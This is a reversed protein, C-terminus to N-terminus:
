VKQLKLLIEKKSEAILEKMIEAKFAERDKTAKKAQEKQEEVVQRLRMGQLKNQEKQEELKIEMKKLSGDYLKKKPRHKDLALFNIYKDIMRSSPTHGLRANVEDRSWEKNLLDCAMSSRLDKWTVKKGEPQCTVDTKKVTRVLFKQATSLRFKFLKNENHLESLPIGKVKRNSYKKTTPKLSKLVIDLYEVTEPYNTLESRATRSRKLIEKRLIVRYEPENTDQNMQKVIDDRELHLLSDINEGIDFALWLLCRQEPTIACAVIKRFDVEDIFKVANDGDNRGKIEFEDFIELAFSNKGAIKFLKGKLMQYYLSRDAYRTGFKTKINGDELDDILKKVDKKTIKTWPKDNFWTNFKRLTGTYFYLTKYSREDVDSLGQKRKLKYEEFKLFDKIIKRNVVNIGKDKLLLEKRRQYREKHM